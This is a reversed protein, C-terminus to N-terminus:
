LGTRLSSTCNEASFHQIKVKDHLLWEDKMVFGWGPREVKPAHLKGNKLSIPCDFFDFELMDSMANIRVQQLGDDVCALEIRDLSPDALARALHFAYILHMDGQPSHPVFRQGFQKAMSAIRVLNSIGGAYGFDPQVIDVPIKSQWVDMRFEQEGGAIPLGTRLIRFSEYSSNDTWFFPEELFAVKFRKLLEVRDLIFDRDLDMAPFAGNADVMIEVDEGLTMRCERLVEETRGEWQDLRRAKEDAAKALGQMRKGIKVKFAHIGHCNRLTQLKKALKKADVQRSINSAYVPFSREVRGNVILECVPLKAWIGCADWIAADLGAVAKSMQVGLMKYNLEFSLVAEHLKWPNNAKLGIVAPAVRRHFLEVTIDADKNGFQGWAITGDVLELKLIAWKADKALFTCMSRIECDQWQSLRELVRAEM